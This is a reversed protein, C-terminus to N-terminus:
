CSGTITLQSLAPSLPDQIPTCRAHFAPHRQDNVDMNMNVDMSMNLRTDTVIVHSLKTSLREM